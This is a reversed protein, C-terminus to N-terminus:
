DIEVSRPIYTNPVEEGQLLKRVCYNFYIDSFVNSFNNSQYNPKLTEAVKAVQEATYGVFVGATEEIVTYTITDNTETKYTFRM